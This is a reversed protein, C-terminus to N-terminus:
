TSSNVATLLFGHSASTLKEDQYYGVEIDEAKRRSDWPHREVQMNPLGAAAWRFNYGFSPKDVSPSDPAYYVLVHDKWITSLSEALGEEGTNQFAGGVIIRKVGLLDAVQAESPYGGGNNNGFIKNRVNSDRRFSTWAEDGMCITLGAALIGNSYRVNDIATEVDGIPDGAGNWASTVASSSGVNSTSTVMSSVRIEWDLLLKDLLFQAKGNHLQNVLLPDANAKDEIPVSGALAYNQCYFTASSVDEGVRRALTGPARTTKENRLRDARSFIHYVDSQKQVRVTPFLMDAIFGEPRYGIAMTSLAQDIHLDRGTANGM